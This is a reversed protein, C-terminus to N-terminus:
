SMSLSTLTSFFSDNKVDWKLGMVKSEIDGTVDIIGPARMELPIKELISPENCVIKLLNFGGKKLVDCTGFIAPLVDEISDHSKICDDVYFHRCIIDKIDDKVDNDVCTRRLAYTAASSCWVGGFLHGKCRFFILNNDDSVWLFRLADKDHDPLQVRYYMDQIDAQWAYPRERFRLLVPLLKNVVDPGRHVQSNLSQGQFTAACDHVPRIKGPKKPNVVPRHPLYWIKKDQNNTESVPVKIDREPVVEANGKEVMKWIEDNYADRMGNKDLNKLLSQLRSYAMSFNNPLNEEPNKWPIGLVYNGDRTRDVNEEWFKLVKQDDQSMGEFDDTLREDNGEQEIEWLRDFNKQIENPPISPASFATLACVAKKAVNKRTVKGHLSVGFMTLVAFPEGPKGRIAAALPMLAEAFDQGLLISPQETGLDPIGLDRLHEYDNVNIHASRIPIRETVYIGSAILESDNGEFPSTLVCNVYDFESRKVGIVTDLDLYGKGRALRLQNAAKSTIFSVNSGWDLTVIVDLVGDVTVKVCPMCCEEGHNLACSTGPVPPPVSAKRILADSHLLFSHFLKCGNVECQVKRWCDSLLHGPKLCGNCLRETDAFKIREEASLAAFKRCRWIFHNSIKCYKCMIIGNNMNTGGCFAPSGSKDDSDSVFGDCLAGGVPPM